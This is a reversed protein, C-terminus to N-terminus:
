RALEGAIEREKVTKRGKGRDKEGWRRYEVHIVTRVSIVSGESCSHVPIYINHMEIM